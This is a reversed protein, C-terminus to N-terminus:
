NKRKKFQWDTVIGLFSKARTYAVYRLNEEQTLQWPQKAYKSPMLDPEIIFVRENELGKSKHISSFCIGQKSDAFLNNIWTILESPTKIRATDIITQFVDKKEQFVVFAAEEKAEAITLFPYKKIIRSVITEEQFTLYEEFENLTKAASNTVMTALQKGIDGGKVYAKRGVAIFQLCMKVLPAVNRCLVMDNDTIAKHSAKMNVEGEPAGAHATIYPVIGQAMAIINKGCRYNVSLPLEITNPINKLRAFSEDDAGAFGYIAQRPDGVAIFRGTPKLMKRILVQQALNLDQCEDAFVFDAQPLEISSDSAPLYLMDVFDHEHKIASIIDVIKIARECEGNIVEIDHKAAIEKLTNKSIAMNVRYLDVLKRVRGMYEGTPYVGGDEAAWQERMNSVERWVKKDNLQSKRSRYLAQAGIAHLTSVNINSPVKTRIEEVIAKNFALFYTISNPPLVRLTHILTTTKGSGAVANILINHVGNQAEDFIATQLNSPSFAM